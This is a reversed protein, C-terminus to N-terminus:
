KAGGERVPALDGSTGELALGAPSSTPALARGDRAEKDGLADVGGLSEGDSRM